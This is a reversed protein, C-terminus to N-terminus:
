KRNRVPNKFDNIKIVKNVEKYNNIETEFYNKIEIMDGLDLDFSKSYSPLNNTTIIISIDHLLQEKKDLLSIFALISNRISTSTGNNNNKLYNLPNSINSIYYWNFLNDDSIIRFLKKHSIIFKGDIFDYTHYFILIQLIEVEKKIFDDIFTIIKNNINYM